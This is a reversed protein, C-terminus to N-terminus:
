FITVVLGDVTQPRTSSRRFGPLTRKSKPTCSQTSNWTSCDRHWKEKSGSRISSFSGYYVDHLSIILNWWNDTKIYELMNRMDNSVKRITHAVKHYITRVLEPLPMYSSTWPDEVWWRPVNQGGTGGGEGSIGGTLRSCSNACSFAMTCLNAVASSTLCSTQFSM